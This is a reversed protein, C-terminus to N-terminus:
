QDDSNGKMLELFVSINTEYVLYVLYGGLVVQRTCNVFDDM